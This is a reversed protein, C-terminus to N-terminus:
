CSGDSSTGLRLSKSPANSPIPVARLGAFLPSESGAPGMGGGPPNGARLGTAAGRQRCMSTPLGQPLASSGMAMWPRDADGSVDARVYRVDPVSGKPSLGGDPPGLSSRLRQRSPAPSLSPFLYPAPSLPPFLYPAHSLSLFSRHPALMLALVVATLEARLLRQSSAAPHLPLSSVAPHLPLSSAPHCSPCLCPLLPPDCLSTTRFNDSLLAPVSAARPLTMSVDFLPLSPSPSPPVLTGLTEAASSASISKDPPANLKLHAFLLAFFCEQELGRM